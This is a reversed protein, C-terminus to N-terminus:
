KILFNSTSINNGHINWIINNKNDTPLHKLGEKEWHIRWLMDDNWWVEEDPINLICALGKKNFAFTMPMHYNSSNPNGGLNNYNRDTFMLVGNLQTSIRSSTTSIDPNNKFTEVVNKVYDKKYIDDDDMKIFIDYQEYNPVNKIALIENFHIYKNESKTIILKDDLLDDYLPSFNQDKGGDSVINVSHIIDQYSQNKVNLICQRLMYPRNYSCTFILVKM